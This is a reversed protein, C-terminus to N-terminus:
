NHPWLVTNEGLKKGTHNAGVAKVTVDSVAFGNLVFVILM